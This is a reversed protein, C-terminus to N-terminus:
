RHQWVDVDMRAHYSDTEADREPIAYNTIHFHTELAARIATFTDSCAEETDAYIDIQTGINDIDPAKDLYNEPTASPVGYTAYPKPANKPARGAPYFRTPTVGLLATCQASATIIPFVKPQLSM